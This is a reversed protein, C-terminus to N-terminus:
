AFKGRRSGNWYSVRGRFDSLAFTSQGDGGYTTGIIVFLADNKSIPMLSGDCFAWGTPALNGVFLRIEEIYAKQAFLIKTNTSIDVTVPMQVQMNAASFFTLFLLMSVIKTLYKKKFHNQLLNKSM